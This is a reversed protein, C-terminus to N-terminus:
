PCGSVITFNDVNIDMATSGVSVIKVFRIRVYISEDTFDEAHTFGDTSGNWEWQTTDWYYSTIVCAGPCGTQTMRLKGSTPTGDDVSTYTTATGDVYYDLTTTNVGAVLYTYITPSTSDMLYISVRNWDSEPADLTTYDFDLTIDFNTNAPFYWISTARSDRAATGTDAFNLKNSQIDMVTDSDSETWLTANPPDGNSGTFTDNKSCVGGGSLLMMPGLANAQFSLCLIVLISLILKKM